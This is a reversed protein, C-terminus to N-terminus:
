TEKHRYPCKSLGCIVQTREMMKNKIQQWHENVDLYKWEAEEVKHKVMSQYEESRNRRLNGYVCEQNLSRVDNKTTNFQMDMVLLKHKPACEENPIVKINRVKTKDEQWVIIYNVTSKVSNTPRCSPCGAQLFSLPPINAHNDPILHLSAYLGASAV